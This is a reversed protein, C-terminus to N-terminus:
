NTTLLERDRILCLMEEVQEVMSLATRKLLSLPLKGAKVSRKSVPVSREIAKNIGMHREFKDGKRCKSSGVFLKGQKDIMAVVTGVRRGNAKRKYRIIHRAYTSLILHNEDALNQLYLSRSLSTAL